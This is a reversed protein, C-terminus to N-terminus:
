GAARRWRVARRLEGRRDLAAGRLRAGIERPALAGDLLPERVRQDVADDLEDLLVDLLRPEGLRTREVHDFPREHVAHADDALQEAGALHEQRLDDLARARHLLRDRAQQGVHFLLLPSPPLGPRLDFITMAVTLPSTWSMPLFM